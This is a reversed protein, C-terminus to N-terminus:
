ASQRRALRVRALQMRAVGAWCARFSEPSSLYDVVVLSLVREALRLGPVDRAEARGDVWEIAGAAVLVDIFEDDGALLTAVMSRVEQRATDVISVIENSVVRRRTRTTSEPPWDDHRPAVARYPGVLWDGLERPSLSAALFVMYTERVCAMSTQPARFMSAANSGKEHANPSPTAAGDV